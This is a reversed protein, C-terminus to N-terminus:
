VSVEKKKSNRARKTNIKREKKHTAEYYFNEKLIKIYEKLLAPNKKGDRNMEFIRRMM